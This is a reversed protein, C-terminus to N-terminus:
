EYFGEAQMRALLDRWRSLRATPDAQSQASSGVWLGKSNFSFVPKLDTRETAPQIRSVLNDLVQPMANPSDYYGLVMHAQSIKSYTGGIQARVYILRLREVPIGMHILTIYKAITYDECDGLRTGLTELPTAWYDKEKWYTIDDQFRINHNFFDNALKLKETDSQSLGTNVLTQWAGLIAVGDSGFRTQMTKLAKDSNTFEARSLGLCLLLLGCLPWRWGRLAIYRSSLHILRGTV